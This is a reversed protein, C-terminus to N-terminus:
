DKGVMHKISCPGTLTTDYEGTNYVMNASNTILQVIFLMVFVSLMHCFSYLTSHTGHYVCVHDDRAPSGPNCENCKVVVANIRKSSPLISNTKIKSIVNHKKVFIDACPNLRSTYLYSNYNPNSFRSHSSHDNLLSCKPSSCIM